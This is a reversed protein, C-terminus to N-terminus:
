SRFALVLVIGMMLSLNTDWTADGTENQSTVTLIGDMTATYKFWETEGDSTNEGLCSYHLMVSIAKMIAPDMMLEATEDYNVATPDTCGASANINLYGEYPAGGTLLVTGDEALIEWTVEAQWSGGDCTVLHLGDPLCADHTACEGLDESTSSTAGNDCPGDDANLTLVVFGNAIDLTNGNWGDGYSDNLNITVPTLDCAFAPETLHPMPCPSELNTPSEPNSDSDSTCDDGGTEWDALNFTTSPTRVIPALTTGISRVGWSDRYSWPISAYDTGYDHTIEGYVDVAVGDFFLEVADNGNGNAASSVGDLTPDVFSGTFDDGFYALMAAPTRAVWLLEGAALSVDPFTFEVGDTGGGNNASGLGYNALSGIDEMAQVVIAKGDSGSFSTADGDAPDATTDPNVIGWPDLDIIAALVM